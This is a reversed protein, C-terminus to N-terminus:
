ARAGAFARRRAFLPVRAATAQYADSFDDFASLADDLAQDDRLWFTDFGSRELLLLQDRLVDGVAMLPGTWRLQQRLQRAISYGRGDTFIPFRIAVLALRRLDPEIEYPDDDPALLM